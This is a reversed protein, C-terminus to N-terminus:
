ATIIGVQDAVGFTALGRNGLRFFYGNDDSLLFYRFSKGINDSTNGM